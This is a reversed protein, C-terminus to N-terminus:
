EEGEKRASTTWLHIQDGGGAIGDVSMEVILMTVNTGSFSDRTGDFALTGTQTTAMFGDFDFFFPDERVGAFARLNLGADLETNVPGIVEPDGGPIGEFKVGWNGDADQGFRAWVTRDPENDGNNDVHIGYLVGDDYTGDSGPVDLGAFTVAAILRDDQRWAFFDGIDAASDATATPSDIHDAARADPNAGMSLATAGLAVTAVWAKTKTRM